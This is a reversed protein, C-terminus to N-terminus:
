FLFYKKAMPLESMYNSEILEGDVKVDYTEPDVTIDGIFDNHKM